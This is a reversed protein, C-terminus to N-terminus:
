LDLSFIMNFAVTTAEGNFVRVSFTQAPIPVGQSGYQALEDGFINGIVNGQLDRFEWRVLAQFPSAILNVSGPVITMHTAFTPIDFLGTSTAATLGGVRETITPRRGSFCGKGLLATLRLDLNQLNAGQKYFAIINIANMPASFVVGNNWDLVFRQTTGGIGVDVLAQVRLDTGIVSGRPDLDVGLMVTWVEPMGWEDLKLITQRNNSDPAFPQTVGLQNNGSWPGQRPEIPYVTQGKPAKNEGRARLELPDQRLFMARDNDSSMDYEEKTATPACALAALLLISIIYRM